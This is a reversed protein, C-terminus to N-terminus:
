LFPFSAQVRLSLSESFHLSSRSAVCCCTSLGLNWGLYAMYWLGRELGLAKLLSCRGVRRERPGQSFFFKLDDLFYYYHVQVEEGRQGWGSLSNVVCGDLFPPGTLNPPARDQQSGRHIQPHVRPQPQPQLRQSIQVMRCLSPLHITRLSSRLAPVALLPQSCSLPGRHHCM